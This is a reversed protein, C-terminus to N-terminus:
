LQIRQQSPTSQSKLLTLETIKENLCNIYLDLRYSIHGHKSKIHNGIVAAAVPEVLVGSFSSLNVSSIISEDLKTFGWQGNYLCGYVFYYDLENQLCNKIRILTPKKPSLEKKIGDLKSRAEFENAVPAAISKLAIYGPPCVDPSKLGTDDFLFALVINWDYHQDSPMLKGVSDLDIIYARFTGDQKREILFNDYKMDCHKLGLETFRKFECFVAQTLQCWTLQGEERSTFSFLTKGPLYPLVLRIGNDTFLYAKNDPHVLNWVDLEHQYRSKNYENNLKQDRLDSLSRIKDPKPQKVVYKPSKNQYCFFRTWATWGHSPVGNPTFKNGEDEEIYSEDDNTATSFHYQLKSKM